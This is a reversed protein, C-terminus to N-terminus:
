HKSPHDTKVLKLSTISNSSAATFSWNKKGTVGSLCLGNMQKVTPCFACLLLLTCFFVM